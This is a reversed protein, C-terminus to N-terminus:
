SIEKQEEPEKLAVAQWVFFSQIVRGIETMMISKFRLQKPVYGFVTLVQWLFSREFISNCFNRWLAKFIKYEVGDVLIKSFDLAAFQKEYNQSLIEIYVEITPKVFQFQRGGITIMREAPKM